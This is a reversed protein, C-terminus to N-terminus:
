VTFFDNSVWIKIEFVSHGAFKLVQPVTVIVIGIHRGTWLWLVLERGSPLFLTNCEVVDHRQKNTSYTVTHLQCFLSSDSHQLTAQRCTLLTTQSGSWYSSCSTPLLPTCSPTNVCGRRTAEKWNKRDVDLMWMVFLCILMWFFFLVLLICFCVICLCKSTICM